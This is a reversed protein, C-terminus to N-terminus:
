LITSLISRGDVLNPFITFPALKHCFDLLEDGLKKEEVKLIYKLNAKKSDGSGRM